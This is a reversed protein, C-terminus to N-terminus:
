DERKMVLLGEGVVNLKRLVEFFLYARHFYPPMEGKDIECFGYKEYFGGLSARCTLYLVGPHSAVLHVIIARAIGRRRWGPLVAISALEFSGDAHPKIQGCGIVLGDESVALVFRRWDLGFPNIGVSRILSRIQPYDHAAAPRIDLSNM